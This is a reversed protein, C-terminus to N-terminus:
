RLRIGRPRRRARGHVGAIRLFNEVAPKATFTVADVRREIVARILREADTSDAPLSWRYVPVRVVDAGMAAIRDCLDNAGAGDLQVAVWAGRLDCTSLLETIDDYRARPATWAVEFGATALAGTAKPGRALLEVQGLLDRLDDGVQLADAAELRGRVGLGTTFIVLDPPNVLLRQTAEHREDGSEVPHTEIVPGHLCEAGREALLDMQEGSRRDATVGITYGELPGRNM